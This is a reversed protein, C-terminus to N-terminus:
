KASTPFVLTRNNTAASTYIYGQGPTLTVTGRWRGGTYRANGGKASIVDGNVVNFGAFAQEQTMSVNLPYAIWNAGNVITVPHESSNIPAGELTIECDASVDIMYMQTVDFNLNGRWRGGTYKTNQSKGQITIAINSTGSLANVLAAKLDDLDTEVNFSVWNTGASLAVTQTGGCSVDFEYGFGAGLDSSEYFVDGNSYSITFSCEYTYNGVVWSLVVHNGSAVPLTITAEVEGAPVTLRQVMGNGFDVVLYNGNWGDGYSDHLDFTLDCYDGEPLFNAALEMNNEVVFSYEADTSVVTGNNDTWDLFVYGTNPIAQLRCIDNRGYQGAGTVTGASADSPNAVVNYLTRNFMIQNKETVRGGGSFSSLDLPDPNTTNKRVFIAQNADGTPYTRCEMGRDKVGTNDDVILALNSGGSYTNSYGFSKDLQITTWVGQKMEVFGSYVRQSENVAIWDTDSSFSTKSTHKMYIDYYRTKTPGANFFSITTITRSGGLEEATYIQQTLCYSYYSNSPLNSSTTEGQGIMKVNYPINMFVAELDADEYVNFEYNANCSVVEDDKRWHLFLWGSNPTATLTCIRGYGVLGQGTVTGGNSPVVNVTVIFPNICLFESWGSATLYANIAASPVYVPINQPVEYFADAGLTPPTVPDVTISTLNTCGYFAGYNIVAVSSPIHLTTIGYWHAFAYMNIETLSNSITLGTFGYCHYFAEEGIETVSNPIILSGTFGSCEYFAANGITTVSNPITLSGTLHFCNYFAGNGISTVSNSITLGTLYSGYFMYAPIRTVNNGITLTGSCHDFPTSSMSVDACNVANFKWQTIGTCDGFAENGISTVSSPITLTGTLGICYYFAGIGITTVSNGLSLSTLGECDFFAISNIETVTNPITLPGTLGSCEYFAEYGIKTVSYSIGNYSVTKPLTINGTPKEFGNWPDDYDEGPCTIEVYHNNVDIINYYLTQGTSCTKSFDFAFARGTGLFLVLLIAFCSNKSYHNKKM